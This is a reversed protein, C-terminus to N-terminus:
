SAFSAAVAAATAINCCASLLSKCHNVLITVTSAEVLALPGISLEEAM